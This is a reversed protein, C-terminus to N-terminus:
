LFKSGEDELFLFLGQLIYVTCKLHATDRTAGLEQYGKV